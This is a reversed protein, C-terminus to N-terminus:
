AGQGRPGRQWHGREGSRWQGKGVKEELGALSGIAISQLTGLTREAFLAFGKEIKKLM